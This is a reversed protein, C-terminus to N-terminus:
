AFVPLRIKLVTGKGVESSVSVTGRHAEVINKIIIMGLGTGGASSSSYFPEFIHSLVEPPMGAGNDTVGLIVNDGESDASLIITGNDKLAKCANDGANILVRLIREEDIIIPRTVNNRVELNPLNPCNKLAMLDMFREFLREVSSITMHLRIDGRAYDLFEAALTEMRTIDGEIKGIAENFYLPDDRNMKLMEVRSKLASLPNRIDHLILSSFKGLVSLRERSLLEEQAERLEMNARALERNQRDLDSVHAENSKRVMMTVAKLLILCISNDSSLLGEFDSAHVVLTVLDTKAKVTASRPRNDILAMEGVPQGIGSTGLLVSDPQGYRKWIEVEGDLVIFFFDGPMDEFFLISGAKFHKETCLGLIKELSAMPMAHFFYINRLLDIKTKQDVKADGFM